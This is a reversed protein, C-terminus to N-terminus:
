FVTEVEVEFFVVVTHESLSLLDNETLDPFFSRFIAVLPHKLQVLSVLLHIVFTYDVQRAVAFNIVKGNSTTAFDIAVIGREKFEV